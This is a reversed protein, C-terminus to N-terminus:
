THKKGVPYVTHDPDWWLLYFAEQQRIGWVRQKATLRLSFLDQYDDKRIEKLRDRAAKCLKTAEIPHHAEVPFDKWKMTEFKSLKLLVEKLLNGDNLKNFGWPGNYDILAIRWRPKDNFISEPSAQPATKPRKKTSPNHKSRPTKNM